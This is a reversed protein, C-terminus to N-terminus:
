DPASGTGQPRRNHRQELRPRVTLLGDDGLEVQYGQAEINAIFEAMFRQRAEETMERAAQEDELIYHVMYDPHNPDAHARQRGKTEFQEVGLDDLFDLSLPPLGDVPDEAYIMNEYEIAIRDLNLKRGMQERLGKVLLRFEPDEYSLIGGDLEEVESTQRKAEFGWYILFLGVFLFIFILAPHPGSGSRLEM